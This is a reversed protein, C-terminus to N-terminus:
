RMLRSGKNGGGVTAVAREKSPKFFSRAQSRCERVARSIRSANTTSVPVSLGAPLFDILKNVATTALLGTQLVVNHSLMAAINCFETTLLGHLCLAVIVVAFRNGPTFRLLHGSNPYTNVPSGKLMRRGPHFAKRGCTKNATAAHALKGALVFIMRLHTADHHLVIELADRGSGKFMVPTPFLVHFTRRPWM